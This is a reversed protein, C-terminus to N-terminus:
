PTSYVHSAPVDVAVGPANEAMSVAMLSRWSFSTAASLCCLCCVDVEEEEEEEAGFAIVFGCIPM